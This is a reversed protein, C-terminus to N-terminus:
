MNVEAPNTNWPNLQIYQISRAEMKWIKQYIYMKRSTKHRQISSRTKRRIKTGIWLHIIKKQITDIQNLQIKQNSWM